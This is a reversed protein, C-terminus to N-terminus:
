LNIPSMGDYIFGEKVGNVKKMKNKKEKPLSISM